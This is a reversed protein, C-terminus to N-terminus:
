GMAAGRAIPSVTTFFGWYTTVPSMGRRETCFYDFTFCPDIKAETASGGTLPTQLEDPFYVIKMGNKSITCIKKNRKGNLIYEADDKNFRIRKKVGTYVYPPSNTIM